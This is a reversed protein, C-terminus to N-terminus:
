PSPTSSSYLRYLKLLCASTSVIVLICAVSLLSGDYILSAFTVGSVVVISIITSFISLRVGMPETCADVASRSLAGFMLSSGTAYGMIPLILGWLFNPGLFALLLAFLASITVILLGYQIFKDKDVTAINKQVYRSGWIFGTFIFAQILGYFFPSHDFSDIILLSSVTIWSVVGISLCCHIFINELFVKNKLLRLYNKLLTIFNFATRKEPSHTEPMTIWLSIFSGVGWISLIIFIVRWHSNLLVLSGLLPGFAPAIVTISAMLSIIRIAQKSDYLEHIIAYGAVSVACVSCGQIFRGILLTTISGAYACLMSSLVFTFNAILVIPRRGYRDSVPGLILQTSATGFLWSILTLQALYSSIHLESMIQPLAPLYMDNSLYVAVEFLCLFLPFRDM